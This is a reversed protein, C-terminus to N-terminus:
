SLSRAAGTSSPATAPATGSTAAPVAKGATTAPVTKGASTAPAVQGSTTAPTAAKGAAAVGAKREGRVPTPPLVVVPCRGQVFSIHHLAAYPLVLLDRGQTRAQLVDRAHGSVLAETVHVAGGALRALLAFMIAHHEHAQQRVQRDLEPYTPVVPEVYWSDLLHLEARNRRAQQVAWPFSSGEPDLTGSVLVREVSGPQTGPGVVAVPSAAHRLCYRSVSGSMAGLAGVHGASGVVLMASDRAQEVLLPGARGELGVVTANLGESVDALAERTLETRKAAPPLVDHSAIGAHWVTVLQLMAGSRHAEDAAWRVATVSRPSLDCGVTIVPRDPAPAPM